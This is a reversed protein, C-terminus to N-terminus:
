PLAHGSRVTMSLGQSYQHAAEELSPRALGSVGWRGPCASPRARVKQRRPVGLEPGCTRPTHPPLCWPSVACDGPQTSVVAGVRRPLPGTHCRRAPVAGDHCLGRVLRGPTRPPSPPPYSPTPALPLLDPPACMVRRMDTTRQLTSTRPHCVFLLHASLYPFMIVIDLKEIRELLHSSETQVKRLIPGTKQAPLYVGTRIHPRSFVPECKFNHEYCYM